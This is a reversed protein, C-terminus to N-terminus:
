LLQELIFPNTGMINWKIDKFECVTIVMFYRSMHLLIPDVGDFIMVVCSFM